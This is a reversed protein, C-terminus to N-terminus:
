FVQKIEIAEAEAHTHWHHKRVFWHEMLMNWLGTEKLKLIRYM